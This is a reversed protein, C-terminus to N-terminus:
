HGSRGVEEIWPVTRMARMGRFCLRLMAVHCFRVSPVVVTYCHPLIKSCAQSLHFLVGTQLIVPFLNFNIKSM